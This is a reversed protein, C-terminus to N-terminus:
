ILQFRSVLDLETESSKKSDWKDTASVKFVLATNIVGM